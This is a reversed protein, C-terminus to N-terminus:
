GYLVFATICWVGAYHISVMYVATICTHILDVKRQTRIEASVLTVVVLAIDVLEVFVHPLLFLM